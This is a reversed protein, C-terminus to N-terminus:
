VAKLFTQQSLKIWFFFFLLSMLIFKYNCWLFMCLTPNVFATNSFLNPDKFNHWTSKILVTPYITKFCALLEDFDWFYLLSHDSLLNEKLFVIPMKPVRSCLDAPPDNRHVRKDNKGLWKSALSGTTDNTDVLSQPAVLCQSLEPSVPKWSM